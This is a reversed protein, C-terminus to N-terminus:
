HELPIYESGRSHELGGHNWNAQFCRCDPISYDRLTWPPPCNEDAMEIEQYSLSSEEQRREKAFKQNRKVTKEIGPSFLLQEPPVTGGICM